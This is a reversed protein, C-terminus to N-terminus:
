LLQRNINKITEKTNEQFERVMAINKFGIKILEYSNNLNIGGIGVIPIKVQSLVKKAVDIGIPEYHEKTPTQFIPGIGIYNAREREAILAQKLSHTSKGIIFNGPSLKRASEISLDDQGLHVGDAESLLAIDLYDNIILLTNTRRTIKRMEKAIELLEDKTKKKDRLQIIKAGGKCAEETIKLHEKSTIVYGGFNNIKKTTFISLNKMTEKLLKQHSKFALKPLNDFRFFKADSSDDGAKLKGNVNQIYYGILAVSTYLPNESLYVGQLVPNIGELNTEEKLERLCSEEPTENLEMFGGPLCWEGKHPEVDRKVLLVSDRDLVVSSTAPIPNEYIPVNCNECFLRLRGEIDKKILDNGCYYCKKKEKM